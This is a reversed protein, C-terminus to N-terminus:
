REFFIEHLKQTCSVLSREPLIFTVNVNSAGHSVMEITVNLEEFANFSGRLVSTSDSKATILTLSSMSTKMEVNAVKELAAKLGQMDLDKFGEDLTLSVTVESTAIVDVSAEFDNFVKFVHALFGHQGLMRSSRIVIM